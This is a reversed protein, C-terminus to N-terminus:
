KLKESRLREFIARANPSKALPLSIKRNEAHSQYLALIAEITKRGDEGTAKPRRGEKIPRYYCVISNAFKCAPVPFDRSDTTILDEGVSLRSKRVGVSCCNRIRWCYRKSSGVWNGCKRHFVAKCLLKWLRRIEGNELDSPVVGHGSALRLPLTVMHAAFFSLYAGCRVMAIRRGAEDWNFDGDYVGGLNIVPKHPEEEHLATVCEITGMGNANGPHM